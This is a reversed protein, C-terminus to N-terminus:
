GYRGGGEYRRFMGVCKAFEMKVSGRFRRCKRAADLGDLVVLWAANNGVGCALKVVGAATAMRRAIEEMNGTVM